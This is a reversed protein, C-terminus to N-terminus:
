TFLLGLFHFFFPLILHFHYLFLNLFSFLFLLNILSLAFYYHTKGKIEETNCLICLLKLHLPERAALPAPSLIRHCLAKSPEFGEGQM